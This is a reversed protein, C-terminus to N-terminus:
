LNAELKIKDIISKKKLIAYSLIQSIYVDLRELSSLSDENDINKDFFYNYLTLKESKVFDNISISENKKRKNFLSYVKLYNEYNSTKKDIYNKYKLYADYYETEEIGINLNDNSLDMGQLETLIIWDCFEKKTIKIKSNSGSDFFRGECLSVISNGRYMLTESMMNLVSKAEELIFKHRENYDKGFFPLKVIILKNKNIDYLLNDNSKVNKKIEEDIVKKSEESLEDYYKFTVGSFEFDNQKTKLPNIMNSVYCLNKVDKSDAEALSLLSKGLQKINNTNNNLDKTQAKSQIMMKKKDSFNLEIDEKEGEFNISSIEKLYKFMFYIAVNVQYEFGTITSSANRDVM